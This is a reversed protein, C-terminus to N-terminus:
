PSPSPCPMSDPPTQTALANALNALVTPPLTTFGGFDPWLEVSLGHYTVANAIAGCWDLQDPSATQFDIIQAPNAGYDTQMADYVFTDATLLPQDLAHNSLSCQPDAQCLQMVSLTFDQDPVIPTNDTEHFLNFTYDIPTERWGAYHGLAEKLCTEQLEDTYGFSHLNAITPADLWSVFPEDTDSGCSTVAVEQILPESDYKAALLNQFNTWAQLYPVSWFLGITGTQHKGGSNTSDISIPGGNLTKAWDPATFGGWVRLKVGLAAHTQNYARVAALAQDIENNDPLPDPGNPQLQEWTANIVMGSFSAAFPAMEDPNNTPIASSGSKNYFSINGMDLLGRLPQKPAPSLNETPKPSPSPTPETVQESSTSPGQGCALVFGLLLFFVSRILFKMRTKGLSRREFDKLAYFLTKGIQLREM